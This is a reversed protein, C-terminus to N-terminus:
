SRMYADRKVKSSLVHIKPFGAMGGSLHESVDIRIMQEDINNMAAIQEIERIAAKISKRDSGELTGGFSKTHFEGGYVRLWGRKYALMSIPHANDIYEREIMRLIEKGDVHPLGKEARSKNDYFGREAEVEAAKLLEGQPIGFKEPNRVINTVHYGENSASFTFWGKTPHWWGPVMYDKQMWPFPKRPALAAKRKQAAALADAAAKAMVAGYRAKQMADFAVSDFPKKRKTATAAETLELILQFYSKL